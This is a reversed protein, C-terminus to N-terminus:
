CVTSEERGHRMPTLPEVSLRVTVLVEGEDAATGVGGRTSDEPGRGTVVAAPGEREVAAEQVM